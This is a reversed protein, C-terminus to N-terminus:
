VGEAKQIINVEITNGPQNNYVESLSVPAQGIYVRVTVIAATISVLVLIAAILLIKNSTKM